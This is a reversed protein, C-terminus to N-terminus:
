IIEVQNSLEDTDDSQRPFHQSLLEGAKEIGQILGAQYHGDRFQQTMAHTIESWFDPACKQHIAEDAIVAHTQSVPSVFLLVSNRERTATMGLKLFMEKAATVPEPAEGSAIVVRIEGSTRREASTIAREIADHNLQATFNAKKMNGVDERAAAASAAAAAQFDAVV